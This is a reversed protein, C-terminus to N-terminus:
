ETVQNLSDGGAIVTCDTYPRLEILKTIPNWEPIEITTCPHPAPAATEVVNWGCGGDPCWLPIVGSFYNSLNQGKLNSYGQINKIQWKLGGGNPATGNAAKFIKGDPMPVAYLINQLSLTTWGYQSTADVIYGKYQGFYNIITFVGERPKNLHLYANGGQEPEYHVGDIKISKSVTNNGGAGDYMYAGPSLYIKGEATHNILQHGDTGDNYFDWSGDTNNFCRFDNDVCGNSNSNYWTGGISVPLWGLYIGELCNTKMTKLSSMELCFYRTIVRKLGQGDINFTHSGYTSNIEIGTKNKVGSQDVIYLNEITYKIGSKTLADNISTPMQRVLASYAGTGYLNLYANSFDFQFGTGYGFFISKDPLRVEDTIYYKLPTADCRIYSGIEMYRMMSNLGAKDVWTTTNVTLPAPMQAFLNNIQVQTYGLNGLTKNAGALGSNIPDISAGQQRRRWYWSSNNLSRYIMYYDATAGQVPDFVAYGLNYGSHFSKISSIIFNNSNLLELMSNYEPIAVSSGPDGKDGKPGIVNGLDESTGDSYFSKLIGGSTIMMDTVSRGDAGDSGMVFSTDMKWTTGVYKYFKKDSPNFRIYKTKPTPTAPNGAPAGFQLRYWSTDYQAFCTGSILLFTILLLKKM